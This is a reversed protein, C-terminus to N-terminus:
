KTGEQQMLDDWSDEGKEPRVLVMSVHDFTDPNPSLAPICLENRVCDIHYCKDDTMFAVNCDEKVCCELVCKKLTKIGEIETFTGTQLCFIKIKLVMVVHYM